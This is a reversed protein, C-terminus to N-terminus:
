GRLASWLLSPLGALNGTATLRAVKPLLEHATRHNHFWAPTIPPRFPGRVVTKQVDELLYTNHVFGRGSQIDTDTAGPYGGWPPSVFAYAAGTFHNVVVSGYELRDIAREVAAAVEPDALSRPHVIISAALTGWLTDNCFEVAADLYEPISRATDLAVEGMVGCFAETTFAIDDDREPDLDPILTFPVRDDGQQGFWEATTHADTFNTWREVAGPYYPMREEAQRLSTRIADLLDSRKSWARHQVIMRSAICNFGGNNVLMSAINHGHYALDKDSWPGPVVIVPTVNGLESTVPTTSRREGRSKRARGEAGAGFVIADHTKDSGTVHVADIGEHETLYAGVAGGGYVIRLLGARILPEFAEAIHVGLHENVPNMKLLVVRGEAFLQHLADMPGISSVNGAGLVLAVGPDPRHDARYIRGMRAEAQDVTVGPLLRVEASFGQFLLADMRDTPLVDVAVQEATGPGPIPRVAPPRPRGTAAIDTLTATLLALNRLVVAIGSGWDEGMLTSGRPIGKAAAAAPVWTPAAALTTDTLERLLAIRATVDTESWRPAHERLTAIAEDLVERPTDPVGSGTEPVVISGTAVPAEEIIPRLM